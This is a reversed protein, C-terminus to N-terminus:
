PLLAKQVKGEWVVWTMSPTAADRQQQQKKMGSEDGHGRRKEEPDQQESAATKLDHAELLCSDTCAFM